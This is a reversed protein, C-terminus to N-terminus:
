KISRLLYLNGKGIKCKKGRFWRINSLNNRLFISKFLSFVQQREKEFSYLALLFFNLTEFSTVFQFVQGLHTKKVTGGGGGGRAASTDFKPRDCSKKLIFYPVQNISSCSVLCFVSNFFDTTYLTKNHRDHRKMYIRVLLNMVFQFFFVLCFFTLLKFKASDFACWFVFACPLKSVYM